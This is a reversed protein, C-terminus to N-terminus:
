NFKSTEKAWFLSLCQSVQKPGCVGFSKGILVSSTLPQVQEAAQRTNQRRTKGLKAVFVCLLIRAAQFLCKWKRRKKSQPFSEGFSLVNHSPVDHQSPETTEPRATISGHTCLIEGSSSAYESPFAGFDKHLRSPACVSWLLTRVHQM